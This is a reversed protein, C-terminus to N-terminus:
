VYGRLYPFCNKHICYIFFIQCFTQPKMQIQIQIHCIMQFSLFNWSSKKRRNAELIIFTQMAKKQFIKILWETIKLSYVCMHPFEVM